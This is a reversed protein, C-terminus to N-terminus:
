RAAATRPMRRAGSGAFKVILRRLGPETVRELAEEVSFWQKERRHKEAWMRRQHAVEMPFVDVKCSVTEGNKRLKNYQFSGLPSKAVNGSIGAEEMAEQAAADQPSKGEMPWGKPVIWRHTRLTTILLIELTDGSKRWPLTAYQVNSTKSVATM